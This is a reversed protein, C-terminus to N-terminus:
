PTVAVLMPELGISTGSLQCQRPVPTSFASGPVQYIIGPILEPQLFFEPKLSTVRAPVAMSFAICYGNRSAVLEPGLFRLM